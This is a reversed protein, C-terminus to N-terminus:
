IRKRRRKNVFSVIMCVAVILIVMFVVRKAAEQPTQSKSMIGDMHFTLTYAIEHPTSMAITDAIVPMPEDFALIPIEFTSYGEENVPLYKEGGVLMYDYHTSSWEIRAYALGDRIMLGAPSTVTTKGTGGAVDVTVAYEGDDMELFVPEAAKAETGDPAPENEAAAETEKADPMEETETIEEAAEKEERMAAIRKEKAAKKLAEYDPLEVLVADAPLSEARFLIQRDYWKEKNKSFAACAIPLDLAAVPVTYTHKGEANEEFAIYSAPDDAAAEQGTGMYVKLYGTGGMTLVATMEGEKVTLEAKEIRFMASSSEAEVEYVGDKVDKGYVPEMGEVGVEQVAAKEEESAVQDWSVVAETERAFGTLTNCSISGFGIVAALVYILYRKKM